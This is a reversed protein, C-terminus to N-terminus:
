RKDSGAGATGGLRDRAPSSPGERCVAAAGRRGVRRLRPLGGGCLGNRSWRSKCSRKRRAEPSGPRVPKRAAKRRAHWGWAARGDRAAGGAHPAHAVPRLSRRDAWAEYGARPRDGVRSARRGEDTAVVYEVRGPPALQTCRPADRCGYLVRGPGTRPGRRRPPPRRRDWGGAVLLLHRSRSDVQFGPGAPRAHRPSRRAADPLWATGKGVARFHISITGTAADRHQDHLPAAPSGRGTRGDPRPRVARGAGGPSRPCPLAPASGAPNGAELLEADALQM